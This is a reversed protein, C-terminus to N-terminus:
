YTLVTIQILVRTRPLGSLNTADTQRGAQRDTQRGTQKDAQKDAQKAEVGIKTRDSRQRAAGSSLLVMPSVAVKGCPCEQCVLVTM